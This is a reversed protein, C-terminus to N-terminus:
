GRAPTATLARGLEEFRRAVEADDRAQWLIEAIRGEWGRRGGDGCLIVDLEGVVRRFLQIKEHLLRLLHEEVTGVACLNYVFVDSAQGVRHVRGIRQEVRMPNWPLDYNVIHRCFQLNLGVGGCETSVLIARPEVQFRRLAEARARAGQGGHLTLVPVGLSGLVAVLHEQTARFETFVLIRTRLEGALGALVRAKSEERVAAAAARLRDLDGGLWDDPGLADLSRRVAAASSCVERQLTILPLVAAEQGVRRWYEERVAETLTQYLRREEAGLELPLLAVRRRGGTERDGVERRRHRVMVEALLAQLAAPDKPTRRDLLFRHWFGRYSGVLDPRVLSVLAYLETLDNQLPTASLLLLRRRPLGAVLRHIETDRNKLRHAEDVVVLDWSVTHLRAAVAQRRALDLSLVLRPAAATPDAGPGLVGFSLGFKTALEHRWQETLPAPCLVLVREAEGRLALESVVLGAEVTKGLGVEDALIGQGGMALVREAAARQHPLLRLGLAQWRPALTELCRLAVTRRPPSGGRCGRGREM